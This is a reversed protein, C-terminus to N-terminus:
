WEINGKMEIAKRLPKPTTFPAMLGTSDDFDGIHFLTFDEANAHFPHEPLNCANSFARLAEGETKYFIPQMYAEAKSDYVSYANIIM